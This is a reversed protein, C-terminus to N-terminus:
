VGVRCCTLVCKSKGVSGAGAGDLGGFVSWVVWFRVMRVV